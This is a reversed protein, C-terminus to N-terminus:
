EEALHRARIRALILPIDGDVPRSGRESGEPGFRQDRRVRLQRTVAAAKRGTRQRLARLEPSAPPAARSM